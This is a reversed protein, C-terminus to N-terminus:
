AIFVVHIRIKCKLLKLLRIFISKSKGPLLSVVGTVFHGRYQFHVSYLQTFIVPPAKWTGDMYLVDANCMLNMM